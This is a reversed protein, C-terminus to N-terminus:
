CHIRFQRNNRVCEDFSRGFFSSLRLPRKASPFQEFLQEQAFDPLQRNLTLLMSVRKCSDIPSLHEGIDREALVSLGRGSRILGGGKSHPCNLHEDSIGFQKLDRPRLM